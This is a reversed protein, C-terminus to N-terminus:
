KERSQNFKWGYWALAVFIGFFAANMLWRNVNKWTAGAEVELGIKHFFEKVHARSEHRRAEEAQAEQRKMAVYKAEREQREKDDMLKNYAGPSEEDPQFVAQAESMDLACALFSLIFVRTFRM